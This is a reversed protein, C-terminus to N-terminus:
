GIIPIEPQLMSSSVIDYNASRSNSYLNCLKIIDKEQLIECEIEANKYIDYIRIIRERLEAEAQAKSTYQNIEQWLKYYQQHEYNEHNSSYITAQILLEDIIHKKGLNEIEQVRKEKLFNKYKDLDLERPLSDYEFNKRDGDFEASIKNTLVAKEEESLLDINFPFIRLYVFVYKGSVTDIVYDDKTYLFIDRVDKVNVFENATMTM